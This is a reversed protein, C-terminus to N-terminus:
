SLRFGRRYSALLVPVTEENMYSFVDKELEAISPGMGGHNGGGKMIVRCHSLGIM